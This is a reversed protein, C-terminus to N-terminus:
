IYFNAEFYNVGIKFASFFIFASAAYDKQSLILVDRKAKTKSKTLIVNTVPVHDAKQEAQPCSHVQEKRREPKATLVSRNRLQIKGPAARSNYSFQLIELSWLKM